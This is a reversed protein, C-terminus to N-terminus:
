YIFAVKVGDGPRISERAVYGIGGRTGAVYATMARDGEVIAAPSLAAQYQLKIWHRKLGAENMGLVRALFAERSESEGELDAPLVKDRSPWHSHGKLFYKRIDKANM